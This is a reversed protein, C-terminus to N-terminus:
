LKQGKQILQVLGMKLGTAMLFYLGHLLTMTFNTNVNYVNHVITSSLPVYTVHSIQSQNYVNKILSVDVPFDGFFTIFMFHEIHNNFYYISENLGDLRAVTKKM